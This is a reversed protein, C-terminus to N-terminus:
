VIRIDVNAIETVITVARRKDSAHMPMIVRQYPIWTVTDDPTLMAAYVHDYRPRGAKLVDSYAASVIRDYSGGNMCPYSAPTLGWLRAITSRPGIRDVRFRGSSEEYVCDVSYDATIAGDLWAHQLLPPMAKGNPDAERVFARKVLHLDSKSLIDGIRRRAAAATECIEEFWGALFYRLMFPGRLGTLFEAAFYLSAFNPAFVSWRIETGLEGTSVRVCGYRHMLADDSEAGAAFQPRDRALTGKDIWYIQGTVMGMRGRLERGNAGSVMIPLPPWIDLWLIKM